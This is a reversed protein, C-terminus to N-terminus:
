EIWWQYPVTSLDLHITRTGADEASVKINDGNFRLTYIDDGTRGLNIDWGGNMAFKWEKGEELDITVSWTLKTADDATMAVSKGHDWSIGAVDGIIAIKTIPTKTYTMSGLNVDIYYLDSAGDVNFNDNSGNLLSQNDGANGYNGPAGWNPANTFKFQGDLFAFGRYNIYNETGLMTSFSWGNGGGPVYLYEAALQLKYTLNYMDVRLEYRGAETVTFESAAAEPTSAVLSNEGQPGYFVRAHNQEWTQGAAKTSEPVVQFSCPLQNAEINLVAVFEPNDYVNGEHSMIQADAFNAGSIHVYYASEIVHDPAIPTVVVEQAQGISGLLVKQTKSVAYAVYNVWMSKPAPDRSVMSRFMDTWESAPAYVNYVATGDTAPTVTLDLAQANSMDQSAAVNMVVELESSAPLDKVETISLMKVSGNEGAANLDVSGGAAVADTATIGDAPMVPEQPNVSPIGLYPDDDSCAAFSISLVAALAINLYKKM